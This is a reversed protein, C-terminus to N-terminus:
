DSTRAPSELDLLTGRPSEHHARLFAVLGAPVAAAGALHHLAHLPVGAAALKVGGRRLLLRYLPLNLAVFLAM